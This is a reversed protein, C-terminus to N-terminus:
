IEWNKLEEFINKISEDNIDTHTIKLNEFIQKELEFLGNVVDDFNTKENKTESTKRSYRMRGDDTREKVSLIGYPGVRMDAYNSVKQELSCEPKLVM